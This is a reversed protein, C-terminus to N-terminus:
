NVRNPTLKDRSERHFCLHIRRSLETRCRYLGVGAFASYKGCKVFWSVTRCERGRRLGGVGQGHGDCVSCWVKASGSSTTRCWCLRRWRTSCIRLASRKRHPPHHYATCQMPTMANPHPAFSWGVLWRIRNPACARPPPSVALSASPRRPLRFSSVYVSRRGPVCRVPLAPM